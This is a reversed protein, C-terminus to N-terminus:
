AAVKNVLGLGLFTAGLVVGIPGFVISPIGIAATNGPEYVGQVLEGDVTGGIYRSQPGKFLDNIFTVSGFTTLAIGGGLLSAGIIVSDRKNKKSGFVVKKNVTSLFPAM